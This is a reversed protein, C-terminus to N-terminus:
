NRQPQGRKVFRTLWAPAHRRRRNERPPEDPPPPPAASHFTQQAVPRPEARRDTEAWLTATYLGAGQRQMAASLDAAISVTAGDETVAYRAAPVRPIKYKRDPMADCAAKAEQWLAHGAAYDAPPPLRVPIAYPDVADPCRCVNYEARRHSTGRPAVIVAVPVSNSLHATRARQGVTLPHPTPDWHIQVPATGRLHFQAHRLEMQLRLLGTEDLQAPEARAVCDSSFQQVVAIGRRPNAPDCAVGTHLLRHVPDLMARRHGPSELLSAVMYRLMTEPEANDRPAPQLYSINEGSADHGGAACYRQHPKRGQRDWHSAVGDALSQEAHAQAAPNAGHRLSPLDHRRRADNTLKLLLRPLNESPM